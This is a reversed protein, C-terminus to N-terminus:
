NLYGRANLIADISEDNLSRLEVILNSDDLVVEYLLLEILNASAPWMSILYSLSKESRYDSVEFFLNAVEIDTGGSSLYCHLYDFNERPIFGQRLMYELVNISTTAKFVEHLPLSESIMVDVYCVNNQQGIVEYTANLKSVDINAPRLTKLDSPDYVLVATSIDDDYNTMLIRLLQTKQDSTYSSQMLSELDANRVGSLSNRIIEEM